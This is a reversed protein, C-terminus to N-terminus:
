CIRMVRMYSNCLQGSASYILISDPTADIIAARKYKARLMKNTVASIHYFKLGHIQFNIFSVM